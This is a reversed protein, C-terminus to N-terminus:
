FHHMLMVLTLLGFIFLNLYSFLSITFPTKLHQICLLWCCFLSSITYCPNQCLCLCSVSVTVEVCTIELIYFV